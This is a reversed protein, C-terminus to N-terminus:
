SSVSTIAGLNLVGVGLLVLFKDTVMVSYSLLIEATPLADHCTEQSFESRVYIPNHLLSCRALVLKNIENTM